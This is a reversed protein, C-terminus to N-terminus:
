TRLFWTVEAVDEAVDEKRKKPMKHAKAKRKTRKSNYETPTGQIYRIPHSRPNGRKEHQFFSPYPRLCPRPWTTESSTPINILPYVHPTFACIRAWLCNLANSNISIVTSVIVCSTGQGQEPAANNNWPYWSSSGSRIGSLFYIDSCPSWAQM